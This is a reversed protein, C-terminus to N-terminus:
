RAGGAEIAAAADLVRGAFERMQEVLVAALNDLQTLPVCYFDCDRFFWKLHVDDDPKEILDVLKPSFFEIVKGDDDDHLGDGCACATYERPITAVDELSECLAEIWRQRRRARVFAAAEADGGLYMLVRNTTM